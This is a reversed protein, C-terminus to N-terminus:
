NSEESAYKYNAPCDLSQITKSWEFSANCTQIGNLAHIYTWSKRHQITKLIPVSRVTPQNEMWPM